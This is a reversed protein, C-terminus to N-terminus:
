LFISATLFLLYIALPAAWLGLAVLWKRRAEGFDSDSSSLAGYRVQWRVLLVPIVVATVLFLPFAVCRALPLFSVLFAGACTGAYARLNGADSVADNVTQQREALQAAIAPDVPASCFRCEAMDTNIYERCSPCRFTLTKPPELM